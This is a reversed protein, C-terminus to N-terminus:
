VHLVCQSSSVHIFFETLFGSLFLGSPLGLHLHPVTNFQTFVYSTLTHVPNLHSLVSDLVPSLLFCPIEQGASCSDGEWSPNQEM